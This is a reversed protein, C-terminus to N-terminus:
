EKVVPVALVPEKSLNRRNYYDLVPAIASRIALIEQGYRELVRNQWVIQAAMKAIAEDRVTRAKQKKGAM